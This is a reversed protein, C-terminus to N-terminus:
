PTRNPTRKFRAIKKTELAEIAAEKINEKLKELKIILLIKM